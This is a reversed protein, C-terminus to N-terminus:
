FRYTVGLAPGSFTLSQVRSDNGFDYDLYRWVAKVDVKDFSYGLGLMTQWTLDSDGTGVDLLYPVFWTRAEGFTARGKVGVIADWQTVEVESSGSRGPLPLSSIDGNFQWDLKTKLDFLRAGALVDMVFHDNDVITYSGSTTWLWGTLNMSLDADVAAPIAVQGLDFDRTTHKTAGLDIYILDTAIGWSGNRVGLAGMFVGSISDIIKDSSVDIPPGNGNPPFSTEGSLSPL